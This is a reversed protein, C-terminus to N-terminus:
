YHCLAWAQEMQPALLFIHTHVRGYSLGEMWECSSDAREGARLCSEVVHLLTVSLQESWCVRLWVCASVSVCVCVCAHMNCLMSECESMSLGYACM